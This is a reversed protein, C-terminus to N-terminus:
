YTVSDRENRLEFIIKVNNLLCIKDQAIIEYKENEKLLQLFKNYKSM